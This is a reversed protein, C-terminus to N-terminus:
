GPVPPSTPWQPPPGEPPNWDNNATVMLTDAYGDFGPQGTIYMKVSLLNVFGTPRKPAVPYTHVHGLLSSVQQQLVSVQRHLLAVAQSLDRIDSTLQEPSEPLVYNPTVVPTRPLNPPKSPETM